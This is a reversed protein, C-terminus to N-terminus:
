PERGTVECNELQTRYEAQVRGTAELFSRGWRQCPELHCGEGWENWANLFVWKSGTTDAEARQAAARLWQEYLEPTSGVFINAGRSKRRASNDWMPFVSDFRRYSPPEQALWHRYTQAYSRIADRRFVVKIRRAVRRFLSLSSHIKNPEFQLAADFGFRAPDQPGTGHNSEVSVLFLDGIGAKRAEARWIEATKQPCPLAEVWYVLLLPKGEIRIYRPDRLVHTLWRIHDRDDEHSYEQRILIEDDGGEWTRSWNHNAWCLCFPFDPKGLTLIGDLPRELVRRGRFWYHYYCFGFIGYGRALDAQAERAEALRLDYFGLDAPLHPQYHGRFHPRGSIVNTWETFGKGWWEDNYPTAYFQPLYFAILRLNPWTGMVDPTLTASSAIESM